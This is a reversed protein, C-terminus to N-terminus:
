ATGGTAPAPTPTAAAPTRLKSQFQQKLAALRAQQDAPLGASQGQKVDTPMAVGHTAAATGQDYDPLKNYVEQLLKIAAYVDQKLVNWEQTHAEMWKLLAAKVDETGTVGKEINPMASRRLKATADDAELFVKLIDQFDNM